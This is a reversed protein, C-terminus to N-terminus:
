DDYHSIYLASEYDVIRVRFHQLWGNRGVVNRPFELREAFYVIADFEWEFCSLRVSHGFATFPGTATIMTEPTGREVEIGLEEAYERQFICFSSGTDIKAQLRVFKGGLSLGIPVEIGAATQSYQYTSRFRLTNM